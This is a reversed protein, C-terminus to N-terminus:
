SGLLRRVKEKDSSFTFKKQLSFGNAPDVLRSRTLAVVQVKDDGMDLQDVLQGVQACTFWAGGDVAQRIVGLKDSSFDEEHVAALLAAFDGAAMGAPAVRVPEQVIVAPQPAVVVVPAPAAVMAITTQRFARLEVKRDFLASGDAAYIIVRYYRGSRGGFSFPVVFQGELASDSWVQAAYGEPQTVVLRSEPSMGYDIRFQDVGIVRPPPAPQVVVVPAPAAVVAEGDVHVGAHIGGLNIDVSQANAAVACVVVAAVIFRRM